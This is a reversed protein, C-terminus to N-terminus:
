EVEDNRQKLWLLLAATEAPGLTIRNSEGRLMDEETTLVIESRDSGIQVYTWDGLLTKHTPDPSM